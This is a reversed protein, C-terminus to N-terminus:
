MLLCLTEHRRLRRLTPEIQIEAAVKAYVPPAAHTVLVVIALCLRGVDLYYILTASNIVM